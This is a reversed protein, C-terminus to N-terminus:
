TGFQDQISDFQKHIRRGFYIMVFPLLFLPVIAIATLHASYRLMFVLSLITTVTTNVLYMIGPGVAMRVAQTDNTARSMLDGTRTSGFFAADLRMLHAFFDDRLDNEIRRSIGNLQQRMGYRYVGNVINIGIIWAAYVLITRSQAGPTRTADIAVGILWPTAIPALNSLGVCLLGFSLGKWYRQVYPLVTRLQNM